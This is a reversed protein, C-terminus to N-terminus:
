ENIKKMIEDAIKDLPLVTHVCRSDIAARPMGFILSTERDQAITYSGHRHMEEMGRAGDEGMGTLIVGVAREGLNRGASKFLHNVSPKFEGWQPLDRDLLITNKPTVEMQVDDPAFYVTGGSVPEGHEAVKVKLATQTGLWEVFSDIFGRSIHQVIVVGVPFGHPIASFIKALAMPGGTSAGVAVLRYKSNEASTKRRHARKEEAKIELGTSKLKARIHPIVKINSLMKVKKVLTEAILDFGEQTIDPKSMNDLAGLSIAKFSTYQESKDIASSFILIPTPTYAMIQETAEFGDMEPMQIDMTIIDPKLERTMRVAEKGNVAEGVVHLDPDNHFIEKLINRVLQSDDVVLIHVSKGM